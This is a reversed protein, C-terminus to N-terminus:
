KWPLTVTETCLIKRRRWVEMREIVEEKVRFSGDDIAEMLLNTVEMEKVWKTGM